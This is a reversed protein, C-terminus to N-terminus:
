KNILVECPIGNNNGDLHYKDYTYEKFVKEAEGYTSFDSCDYEKPFLFVGLFGM